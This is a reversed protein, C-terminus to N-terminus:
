SNKFNIAYEDTITDYSRGFVKQHDKNASDTIQIAVIKPYKQLLEKCVLSIGAERFRPARPEPLIVEWPIDKHELLRVRIEWTRKEDVLSETLRDAMRDIMEDPVMGPWLVAPGLTYAFGKRLKAIQDPTRKM